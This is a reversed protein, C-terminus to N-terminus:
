VNGLPVHVGNSLSLSHKNISLNHFKCLLLSREFPSQDQHHYRSLAGYTSIVIERTFNRLMTYYCTLLVLFLLTAFYNTGMLHECWFCLSPMTLTIYYAAIICFVPYFFLFDIPVWKRPSAQGNKRRGKRSAWAGVFSGLLSWKLCSYGYLQEVFRQYLKSCPGLDPLQIAPSAM